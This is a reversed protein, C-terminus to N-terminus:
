NRGFWILQSAYWVQWPHVVCDRHGGLKVLRQWWRPSWWRSPNHPDLPWFNNWNKQSCAKTTHLAPEQNVRCGDRAESGFITALPM